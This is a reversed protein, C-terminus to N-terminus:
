LHSSYTLSKEIIQVFLYFDGVADHTRHSFNELESNVTSITSLTEFNNNPNNFTMKVRNQPYLLQLLAEISIKIFFTEFNTYYKMDM